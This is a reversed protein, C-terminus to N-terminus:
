QPLISVVFNDFQNDSIFKYGGLSKLVHSKCIEEKLKFSTDTQAKTNKDGTLLDIFNKDTKINKSKAPPKSKKKVTKSVSSVTPEVFTEIEVDPDSNSNLLNLQQKLINHVPKTGKNIDNDTNGNASNILDCQESILYKASKVM